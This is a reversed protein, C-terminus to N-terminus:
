RDRLTLNASKVVVRHMKIQRDRDFAVANSLLGFAVKAFPMM